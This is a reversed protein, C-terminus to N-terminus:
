SAYVRDLFEVAIDTACTRSSENFSRRPILAGPFSIQMTRREKDQSHGCNKEAIPM